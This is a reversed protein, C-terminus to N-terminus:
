MAPEGRGDGRAVDEGNERGDRGKPTTGEIRVHQEGPVRSMSNYIM